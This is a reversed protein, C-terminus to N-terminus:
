YNVTTTFIWGPSDAVVMYTYDPLAVGSRIFWHKANTDAYQLLCKWDRSGAVETLKRGEKRWIEIVDTPLM